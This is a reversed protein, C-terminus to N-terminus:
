GTLGHLVEAPIWGLETETDLLKSFHRDDFRGVYVSQVRGARVRVAWAHPTEPSDAAKKPLPPEEWFQVTVVFSTYTASTFFGGLIAAPSEGGRHVLRIGADLRPGAPRPRRVPAPGHRVGIPRM